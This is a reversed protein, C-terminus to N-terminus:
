DERDRRPLAGKVALFLFYAVQLVVLVIVAHLFASGAGFGSLASVLGMAASLLLALAIFRALRMDTNVVEGIMFTVDNGPQTLAVPHM